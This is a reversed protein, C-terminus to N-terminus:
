RDDAWQQWTKGTHSYFDRALDDLAARDLWEMNEGGAFTRETALKTWM